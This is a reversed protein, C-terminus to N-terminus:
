GKADAVLKFEAPKPLRSGSGASMPFCLHYAGSTMRVKHIMFTAAVVKLSVPPSVMVM